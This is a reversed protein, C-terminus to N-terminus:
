RVLIMYDKEGTLDMLGAMLSLPETIKKMDVRRRQSRAKNVVVCGWAAIGEKDDTVCRFVNKREEEPAVAFYAMSFTMPNIGSQTKIKHIPNEILFSTTYVSATIVLIKKDANNKIDKAVNGWDEKIGRSIAKDFLQLEESNLKLERDVYIIDFPGNNKEIINKLEKFIALQNPFGPEVGFWFYKEKQIEQQLIRDISEAVEQNSKFYSLKIKPVTKESQGLTLYVLTVVGAFFVAGIYYIVKFNKM